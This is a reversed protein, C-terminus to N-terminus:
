YSRNRRGRRGYNDRYIRQGPRTRNIRQSHIAWFISWVLLGVGTGTGVAPAAGPVLWVVITVLVILSVVATAIAVTKKNPMVNRSERSRKAPHAPDLM